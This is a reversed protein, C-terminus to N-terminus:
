RNRLTNNRVRNDKIKAALRKRGSSALFSDIERQQNQILKFKRKKAEASVRYESPGLAADTLLKDTWGGFNQGSSITDCINSILNNNPSEEM